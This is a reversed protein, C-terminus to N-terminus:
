PGPTTTTAAPGSTTTAAPSDSGAQNPSRQIGVFSFDTTESQGAVAPSASAPLSIALDLFDSGGPAMTNLNDLAWTGVLPSPPVLVTVTGGCSYSRPGPASEAWPVSCAEVQLQLGNTPDTDLVSGSGASVLQLRSLSINGANTLTVTREQSQGPLLGSVDYSLQDGATGPQGLDLVVAGTSDAAPASVTSTETAFVGSAGLVGVTLGAIGLAAGAGLYFARARGPGLPLSPVDSPTDVVGVKGPSM